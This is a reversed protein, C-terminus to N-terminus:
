NALKYGQKKAAELNAAPISGAKGDPSIVRVMETAPAKAGPAPASSQKPAVAAASRNPPAAVGLRKLFQERLPALEAQGKADEAIAQQDLAAADQLRQQADSIKKAKEGISGESLFKQLAANDGPSNYPGWNDTYVKADLFDRM